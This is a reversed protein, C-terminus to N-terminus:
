PLGECVVGDGDGDLRHPDGPKHSEYFEQAARQTDFDSCDRDRSGSSSGRSAGNRWQWPPVPNSAAWLGRGEERAEAELDPLRSGPELYHDYAWAHGQQVLWANIDRGQHYVRGILRGHSGRGDTEIRVTEGLVLRRVAQGAEDGHPQGSEPTDIGGLRVVREGLEITDGDRVHTVEAEFDASASGTLLCGVILLFGVIYNPARQPQSETVEETRRAPRRIRKWSLTPM